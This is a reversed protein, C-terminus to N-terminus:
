PDPNQVLDRGIMYSRVVSPLEKSSFGLHHLEDRSLKFGDGAPVVGQFCMRANSALASGIRADAGATLSSNIASVHAFQVEVKGNKESISKGLTPSLRDESKSAGVTMAVRVDAGD